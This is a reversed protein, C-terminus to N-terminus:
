ILDPWEERNPRTELRYDITIEEDRAIDRNATIIYEKIRWDSNPTRSHNVYFLKNSLDSTLCYTDDIPVLWNHNYQFPTLRIWPLKHFTSIFPRYDLVIEGKKFGEISLLGHGQIKSAGIYTHPANDILVQM